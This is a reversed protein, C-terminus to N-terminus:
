VTSYLVCFCLNLPITRMAEKDLQKMYVFSLPFCFLCPSLVLFMISFCRQKWLFFAVFLFIILNLILTAKFTLIGFSGLIIQSLFIQLFCLVSVSLVLKGWNKITFKQLWIYIFIATTLVMGNLLIFGLFQQSFDDLM